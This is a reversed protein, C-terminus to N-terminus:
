TVKRVICLSPQGGPTNAIWSEAESFSVELMEQGENLSDIFGVVSRNTDVYAIDMYHGWKNRYLCHCGIGVNPDRVMEGVVKWKTSSFNQWTVTVSHGLSEVAKKIGYTIGDHGTGSTNTWELEALVKQALEYGYLEYILQVSMFPGCWYNTQQKANRLFRPQLYVGEEYVPQPPTIPTEPGIVMVYAPQTGNATWWADFRKMMQEFRNRYIYDGQQERKTYIKFNETPHTKKYAAYRGYMDLYMDKMIKVNTNTIDSM